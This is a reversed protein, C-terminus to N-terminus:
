AHYWELRLQIIVGDRATMVGFWKFDGLMLLLRDTGIKRGTDKALRDALADAKMMKGPTDFLIRGAIDV